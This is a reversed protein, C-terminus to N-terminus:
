EYRCTISAGEYSIEIYTVKGDSITIELNVDKAYSTGFVASTDAAAVTTKLVDGAENIEVADEKLASINLAVGNSVSAPDFTGDMDGSYQGDASRNITGKVTSKIEDAGIENFKDYSYKIVASGDDNYVVEYSSALAGLETEVSTAVYIKSPNNNEIAKEFDSLKNGFLNCSCLAALCACLLIVSIIKKM